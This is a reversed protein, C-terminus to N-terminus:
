LLKESNQPWGSNLTSNAAASVCRYAPGATIPSEMGCAESWCVALFHGRGTTSPYSRGAVGGGAGVTLLLCKVSELLLPAM